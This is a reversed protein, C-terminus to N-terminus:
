IRAQGMPLLFYAVFTAFFILFGIELWVTTSIVAFDSTALKPLAFPLSLVLSVLFMWKMMTVVSYRAVLKRCTGLYLAFIACNLITYTIGMATTEQNAAGKHANSQLIIWVIGVFSLLVGGAKKWTIPERLFIAASFMTLIPTITTIISLDVPKTQAIANLFTVQPLFIGIVAAGFIKMLDRFPVKERPAFVSVLWFLAAAVLARMAFLTIPALGSETAIDRCFVINLGFIVYTVAAALHGIVQSKKM